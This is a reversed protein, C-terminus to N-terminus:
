RANSDFSLEDIDERLEEIPRWLDEEPGQGAWRVMISERPVTSRGYRRVRNKVFREVRWHGQGGIFEEPEVPEPEGQPGVTFPKLQSVHFTPSRQSGRPLELRM